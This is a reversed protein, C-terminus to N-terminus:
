PDEIKFGLGENNGAELNEGTIQDFVKIVIKYAVGNGNDIEEDPSIEVGVLHRCSHDLRRYYQSRYFSSRASVRQYSELSPREIEAPCLAMRASTRLHCWPLLRTSDGHTGFSLIFPAKDCCSLPYRHIFSIAGGLCYMTMPLTVNSEHEFLSKHEQLRGGSVTAAIVKGVFHVTSPFSQLTFLAPSYSQPIPDQQSIWFTQRRFSPPDWTLQYQGEGFITPFRSFSGRRNINESDYGFTTDYLLPLIVHVGAGSASVSGSNVVVDLCIAPHGERLLQLENIDFNIKVNESLLLSVQLGLHGLSPSSYKNNTLIMVNYKVMSGPSEVAVRQPQSQAPEIITYPDFGDKSTDTVGNLWKFCGPHRCFPKPSSALLGFNRPEHTPTWMFITQDNWRRLIEEQLRRFAKTLGEGYIPPMHVDFLGMLCYAIDEGRTTQRGSAWSLRQAVTCYMPPSGQLVRLPIGTITSLIRALTRKTGIETWRRNCFLIKPPALLEQLTWGRHFWKCKSLADLTAEEGDFDELYVYCTEAEEYWRYMSNLSESLEASSSKDICCTDIWIWENRSRAKECSEKVKMYGNLKDFDCSSLDQFSLEVQNWTHSLIAYKPNGVQSAEHLLVTTTNLLRM